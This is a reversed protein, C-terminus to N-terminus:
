MVTARGLGALALPYSVIKLYYQYYYYTFPLSFCKVKVESRWVHTCLIRVCVHTCVCQVIGLGPMCENNQLTLTNMSGARCKLWGVRPDGGHQWWGQLKHNHVWFLPRPGIPLSAEARLGKTKNAQTVRSGWLSLLCCTIYFSLLVQTPSVKSQNSSIRGSSRSHTKPMLCLCSAPVEWRLWVEATVQTHLM